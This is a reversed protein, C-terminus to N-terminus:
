HLGAKGLPAKKHGSRTLYCCAIFTFVMVGGAVCDIRKGEAAISWPIPPETFILGQQM